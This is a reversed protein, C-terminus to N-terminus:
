DAVVFGLRPLFSFTGIFFGPVFAPSKELFVFHM